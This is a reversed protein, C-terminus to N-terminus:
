KLRGESELKWATCHRFFLEFSKIRTRGPQGIHQKVSDLERFSCIPVSGKASRTWSRNDFEEPRSSVVGGVENLVFRRVMDEAVFAIRKVAKLGTLITPGPRRNPKRRARSEAAEHPLRAATDLTLSAMSCPLIRLGFGRSAYKYM